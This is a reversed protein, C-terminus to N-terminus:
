VYDARMAPVWFPSLAEQRILVRPRGGALHGEMAMVNKPEGPRWRRLKWDGVWVLYDGASVDETVEARGHVVDVEMRLDSVGTLAAM